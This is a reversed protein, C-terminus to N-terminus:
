WARTGKGGRWGSGVHRVEILSRVEGAIGALSRWVSNSVPEVVVAKRLWSSRKYRTRGWRIQIMDARLSRLVNIERKVLREGHGVFTRQAKIDGAIVDCVPLLESVWANWADVSNQLLCSLCFLEPQNGGGDVCWALELEPRAVGELQM